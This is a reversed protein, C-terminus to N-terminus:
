RLSRLYRTVDNHSGVLGFYVADSEQVWVIRTAQTVRAEFVKRPGNAFLFKIRLGFPAQRTAYYARIHRDTEHILLQEHRSFREFQRLYREKYVFQM